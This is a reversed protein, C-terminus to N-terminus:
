RTLLAWGKRGQAQPTSQLQADRPARLETADGNGCGYTRWRNCLADLILAERTKHVVDRLKLLRSTSLRTSHPSYGAALFM